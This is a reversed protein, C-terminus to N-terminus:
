TDDGGGLGLVDDLQRGDPLQEVRAAQDDGRSATAYGIMSPGSPGWPTPAVGASSRASLSGAPDIPGLASAAQRKASRRGPPTATIPASRSAAFSRSPPAPVQTRVAGASRRADPQAVAAATRM